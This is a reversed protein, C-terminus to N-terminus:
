RRLSKLCPFIAESAEKWSSDLGGTRRGLGVPDVRGSFWSHGVPPLSGGMDNYPHNFRFNYNDNDNGNAYDRNVSHNHDHNGYKNSNSSGNNHHQHQCHEDANDDCGSVPELAYLRKDESGFYVTSGSM